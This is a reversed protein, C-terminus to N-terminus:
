PYLINLGKFASSGWSGMKIFPNVYEGTTANFFYHVEVKSADLIGAEYVKSWTGTSLANLKQGLEVPIYKGQAVSVSKYGEGFKETLSSFTKLGQAGKNATTTFASRALGVEAGGLFGIAFELAGACISGIKDIWETNISSSAPLNTPLNWSQDISKNWDEKTGDTYYVMGIHQYPNSASGSITMWDIQVGIPIIYEYLVEKFSVERGYGDYYANKTSNYSYSGSNLTGGSSSSFGGNDGGWSYYDGRYWFGEGEHNYTQQLTQM